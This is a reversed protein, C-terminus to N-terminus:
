VKNLFGSRLVVRRCTVLGVLHAAEFDSSVLSARWHYSRCQCELDLSILHCHFLMLDQWLATAESRLSIAGVPGSSRRFSPVALRSGLFSSFSAVERTVPLALM